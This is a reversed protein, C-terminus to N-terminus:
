KNSTRRYNLSKEAVTKVKGPLKGTNNNDPVRGTVFPRPLPSDDSFDFPKKTKKNKGM